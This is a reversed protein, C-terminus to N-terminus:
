KKKLADLGTKPGVAAQKAKYLDMVVGAAQLQSMLDESAGGDSEAKFEIRDEAPLHPPNEIGILSCRVEQSTFSFFVKMEGDKMQLQDGQIKKYLRNPLVKRLVFRTPEEKLQLLGEDLTELYREYAEADAGIASDIRLVVKFTDHLSPLKLAM